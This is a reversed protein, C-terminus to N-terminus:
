ARAVSVRFACWKPFDGAFEFFDDFYTLGLDSLRQIIADLAERGFHPGFSAIEDNSDYPSSVEIAALLNELALGRETLSDLRVVLGYESTARVYEM